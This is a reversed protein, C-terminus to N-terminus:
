TQFFNWLECFRDPGFETRDPGIETRPGFETWFNENSRIRDLPWTEPSNAWSHSIQTLFFDAKLKRLTIVDKYTFVLNSSDTSLISFKWITEWTKSRNDLDVSRERLCSFRKFSHLWLDTFSSITSRRTRDLAAMM